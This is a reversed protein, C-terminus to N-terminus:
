SFVSLTSFGLLQISELISCPSSKYNQLVENGMNKSMRWRVWSEGSGEMMRGLLVWCGQAKVIPIRSHKLRKFKRDMIEVPEEDFGLTQDVRIDKLPVHLSIDALCKKLISVYFTNHVGNLEQSFKLRYAVSGIRELIEFPGIYRPALKGKKGFRVVGVKDTTEHVMKPGILRNEEIEAWLVSRYKRGYFAEYPACRMSSHYSNNCFFEALPLHTDWSGGFDIVCASLVDELTQITRESQGDIQPHYTTRMDLRTGLAYDERTAMFHALKTLRDVMVWIMDYGSRSRPLKTIFDMTIKDWKWEPIEPWWYMDRFDYYMKDLIPHISYRTAHAEGMIMTRVNGILPVRIRDMFYLGGDGKKEMQKNLRHLMKAPANEEKTAENQTALFKEKIGSQITMSLALVRKLKVREKRSLADAVVNANCKSFKAFLSEKKLLELFFKLHIEHEEKSKSYILIDDIFVIFFKDLYPKCVRNMLDMFVVPTYTLGFPIVTFEFHVYRTRFFTTKLIDEKHGRLQHYSSRLDIKSFYRLGQLQDFLDDIMLLPYRNKTTLKYLERYDIYM